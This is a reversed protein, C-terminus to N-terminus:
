AAVFVLVEFPRLKLAGGKVEIDSSYNRLQQQVVGAKVRGDDLILGAVNEPVPWEVEESSFSAVVVAKKSSSSISDASRLYAVVQESKNEEDLIQFDGYVFLDKEQKRLDLLRSWYRYSSEKDQVIAEANWTKYDPHIDMWPEVDVSAPFFGANKRSTWQMPTRANDRGILRYQDKYMKQLKEDNPHERLVQEWHNRMEIDKYKDVGWEKPVSAMALEQGQYVFLTGSQLALHAGIMKSSITRLKPDDSAFRSVTRAQDHNEMYLANWGANELM